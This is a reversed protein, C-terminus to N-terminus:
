SSMLMMGKSYATTTIDTQQQQILQNNNVDILRGVNWDNLKFSCLCERKSMGKWSQKCYLDLVNDWSKDKIAM